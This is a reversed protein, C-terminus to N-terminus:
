AGELAELVLEAGPAGPQVYRVTGGQEVLVVTRSVSAGGPNVAGYASAAALDPDSLLPFPLGLREAYDAHREAPAPNIGFPRVRHSELKTM